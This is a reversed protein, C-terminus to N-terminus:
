APATSADLRPDGDDTALDGHCSFVDTDARVAPTFLPAGGKVQVFDKFIDAVLPASCQHQDRHQTSCFVLRCDGPCQVPAEGSVKNCHWCKLQIMKGIAASLDSASTLMEDSIKIWWLRAVPTYGTTMACLVVPIKERVDYKFLQTYDTFPLASM